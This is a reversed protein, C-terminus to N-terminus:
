NLQNKNLLLRLHPFLDSALMGIEGKEAALDATQAHLEVGTAAADFLDLGQGVLAGIIGSLVDGMGGSSMGPNGTTCVLTDVGNNILSGAGKLVIAGGYKQHMKEINSYRDSEIEQADSQLLRAAEKPHPTLIWNDKKIPNESLINLADADM